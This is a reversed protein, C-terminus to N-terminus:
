ASLPLEKPTESHFVPFGASNFCSGKCTTGTRIFEFFTGTQDRGDILFRFRLRSDEDKSANDKGEEGSFSREYESGGQGSSRISATCVQVAM